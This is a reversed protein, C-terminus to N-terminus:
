PKHTEAEVRQKMDELFGDELIAKPCRLEGDSGRNVRWGLRQGESLAKDPSMLMLCKMGAGGLKLAFCASDTGAGCGDQSFALEEGILAKAMRVDQM